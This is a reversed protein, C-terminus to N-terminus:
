SSDLFLKHSEYIHLFTFVYYSLRTLGRESTMSSAPWLSNNTNMNKNHYILFFNTARRLHWSIYVFINVSVHLGREPIMSSALWLSNNINRNKNHHILAFNTVRRLHWCFLLLPKHHWLRTNNKSEKGQVTDSSLSLHVTFFLFSLLDTHLSCVFTTDSPGSTQLWSTMHLSFTLFSGSDQLPVIFLTLFLLHIHYPSSVM